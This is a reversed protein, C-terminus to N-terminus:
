ISIRKKIKPSIFKMSKDTYIHLDGGFTDGQYNNDNQQRTEPFVLLEELYRKADNVNNMVSGESDREKTGGDSDYVTENILSNLIKFVNNNKILIGIRDKKKIFYKKIIDFLRLDHSINKHITTIFYNEKTGEKVNLWSYGFNEGCHLTNDIFCDPQECVYNYIQRSNTKSNDFFSRGYDIIKVLYKSKFTIVSNKNHYHYTIYKDSKEGFPKYVLVNEHHLDYHTFSTSLHSLPM